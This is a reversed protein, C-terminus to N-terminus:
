IMPSACIPRLASESLLSQLHPRPDRHPRRQQDAGSLASGLPLWPPQQLLGRGFFSIDKTLRQDVTMVAGIRQQPAEEWGLKNPDVVNQVGNGGAVADHYAPSILTAWSLPNPNQAPTLPGIGSNLSSPFNAGSGQPIAYCNICSSPAIYGLSSQSPLNPAGTTITGPTSSGLPRRDDLGWPRYDITFNSHATGKVKSDDYWEFSLTIQGGDWTRGWLQSASYHLHGSSASSFGLQTMAGDYNRRLIINIVGSIADSGYTASAGDALIDIHDLSISPIISPDISCIGDAQPPFRMGDVMLLARPGTADLGRLNVRTERQTHGGGYTASSSQAVIAGPYNRFLDAITVAGTQAFDMQTLNTVRVGVAATGPILSGTILVQEPVQEADATQAQAVQQGQAAAAIAGAMTLLSATGLLTTLKPIAPNM